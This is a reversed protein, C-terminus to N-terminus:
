SHSFCLMYQGRPHGWNGMLKVSLNAFKALGAMEELSYHYPDRDAHTVIDGPQHALDQLYVPEPAEFFSAFLRGDPALVRRVKKLCVGIHNGHLHTFVSVALAFDFEAGFRDFAFQDDVLLHANKDGCGLAALERKGAEILSRNVDIGYYHGSKLYPVFHIGGRLCGCGIDLLRHSPGLGQEKLFRFQLAGIEDWMGGVVARHQGAKIESATLQRGYINEAGPEAAATSAPQAPAPNKNPRLRM